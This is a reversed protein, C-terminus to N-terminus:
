QGTFPNVPMNQYGSDYFDFNFGRNATNLVHPSQMNVRVPARRASSIGLSGINYRSNRNPNSWGFVGSMMGTQNPQVGYVPSSGMGLHDSPCPNKM